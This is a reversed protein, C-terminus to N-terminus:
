KKQQEYRARQGGGKGVPASVTKGVAAVGRSRGVMQVGTLKAGPRSGAAAGGRAGPLPLPELIFLLIPQAQRGGGSRPQGGQRAGQWAGPSSTFM